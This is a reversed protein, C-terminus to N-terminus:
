KKQLERQKRGLRSLLQATKRTACLFGKCVYRIGVELGANHHNHVANEANSQRKKALSDVDKSSAIIIVVVSASLHFCPQRCIPKNAKPM